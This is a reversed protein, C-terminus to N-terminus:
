SAGPASRRALGAGSPGSSDTTPTATPQLSIERTFDKTLDLNDLKLTAYGRRRLKITHTGPEVSITADYPTHGLKQGDLLVTADAPNTTIHVHISKPSPASKDPKPDTKPPVVAPRAALAPKPTVAAIPESSEPASSQAVSSPSGGLVDTAIVGVAGAVIFTATITWGVVHTPRARNVIATRASATVPTSANNSL